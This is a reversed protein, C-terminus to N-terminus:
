DTCVVTVAGIFVPPRDLQDVLTDVDGREDRQIALVYGDGAVDGPIGEVCAVPSVVVYGELADGLAALVADRRVALAGPKAATDLVAIWARQAGPTASAAGSTANSALGTTTTSACACLLALALSSTGAIRARMTTWSM